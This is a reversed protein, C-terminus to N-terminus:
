RWDGLEVTVKALFGSEDITVNSPIQDLRITAPIGAKRLASRIINPFLDSNVYSSYRADNRFDERSYHASTITAPLKIFAPAPSGDLYIPRQVKTRFSLAPM